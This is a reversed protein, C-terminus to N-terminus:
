RKADPEDPHQKKRLSKMEEMLAQLKKEVEALRHEYNPVSGASGAGIGGGFGSGGGFSSGTFSASPGFTSSRSPATSPGTVAGGGGYVPGTMFRKEPSPPIASGKPRETSPYAPKEPAAISREERQAQGRLKALRRQAQNLRLEAEKIQADKGALRAQQVEVEFQAKEAESPDIAHTAALNSARSSTIRAQRLRADVERREARRQELQLRLLDMEDQVDDVTEPYGRGEGIRRAYPNRPETTVGQDVAASAASTPHDPTGAAFDPSAAFRGPTTAIGGSAPKDAATEPRQETQAWTPYLPLLVAALGLVALCGAASLARPTTGRMIMTVRRKLLHMQGIGSAALPLAPRANSLYTVAEVLATAYVDAAAPLAWVVWADCCHEEAERLERRAWWVLPHWWYLGLAAMELVRVWHDHRRLHALEHAVLTDWQAETLRDLLYKPVVLRPEGVLAWLLPSVPAPVVRVEPCRALGLRDALRRTRGQLTASAAQTFKLLRHFRSLRYGALALWVGSGSLWIAVLWTQLPVRSIAPAVSHTAAEPPSSPKVIPAEEVSSPTLDVSPEAPAAPARTQVPASDIEDAPAGKRPLVEVLMTAFEPEKAFPGPGTQPVHSAVLWSLSLPWLPPTLLKLFVLLWLSHVLAPRRSIRGFVSLIPTLVAVFAANSLAASLLTDV